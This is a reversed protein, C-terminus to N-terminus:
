MKRDIISKKDPGVLGSVLDKIFSRGYEILYKNQENILQVENIMKRIQDNRNYLENWLNPDIEEKISSFFDESRKVEVTMSLESKINDIIATRLKNLKQLEFLCKEETNTLSQLQDYNSGVIAKQKDTITQRLNTLKKFIEENISKLENVSM